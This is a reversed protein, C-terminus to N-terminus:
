FHSPVGVARDEPVPSLFPRTPKRKTRFTGEAQRLGFAGIGCAILFVGLWFMVLQAGSRDRALLLAYEHYFVSACATSLLVLAAKYVPLFITQPYLRLGRNVFNLQVLAPPVVGVLVCITLHSWPAQAQALEVFAKLGIATFCGAGASALAPLLVHSIPPNEPRAVAADELERAFMLMCAVCTAFVIGIFVALPLFSRSQLLMLLVSGDITSYFDEHAGFATTVLMGVIICITAPIDVFPQLREGLVAPALVMNLAVALGALPTVLSLPGLSYAFLKVPIPVLTVLLFGLFWKPSLTVDFVRPWKKLEDRDRLVMKQLIFGTVSAASAVFCVVVALAWPPLIGLYLGHMAMESGDNSELLSLAAHAERLLPAGHNFKM